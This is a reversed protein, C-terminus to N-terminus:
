LDKRKKKKLLLTGGEQVFVARPATSALTQASVPSGALLAILLCPVKWRPFAGGNRLCHMM